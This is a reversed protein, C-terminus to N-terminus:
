LVCCDTLLVILIDFWVCAFRLWCGLNTSFSFLLDSCGVYSIDFDIMMEFRLCIVLLDCCCVVCRM